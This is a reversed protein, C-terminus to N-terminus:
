PTPLTIQDGPEETEAPLEEAETEVDVALQTQKGSSKENEPTAATTETSPTSTPQEPPWTEIPKRDERSKVAEWSDLLSTEMLEPAKSSQTEYGRIVRPDESTEATAPEDPTDSGTTTAPQAEVEATESRGNPVEYLTTKKTPGTPAAATVGAKETPSAPTEPAEFATVLDSALTLVAEKQTEIEANLDLSTIGIGQYADLEDLSTPEEWEDKAHLRVEALLQHLQVLEQKYSAM